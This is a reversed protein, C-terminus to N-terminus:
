NRAALYGWTYANPVIHMDLTYECMIAYWYVDLYNEIVPWKKIDPYCFRAATKHEYTEYGGTIGPNLPGLVTIGPPPLQNTVRSDIHMPHLPSKHGIGTTYCINLPNAGAGTQAALM